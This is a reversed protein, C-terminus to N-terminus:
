GLYSTRTSIRKNGCGHHGPLGLGDQGESDRTCFNVRWTFADHRGIRFRYRLTIVFEYLHKRQPRSATATRSLTLTKPAPPRGSRALRLGAYLYWHKAAERRYTSAPVSVWLRLRIHCVPRAPRSCSRKGTIAGLAEVYVTRVASDPVPGLRAGTVQIRYNTAIEPRVRFSYRASAGTLTVSGGKAYTTAGFREYLLTAKDGRHAGSVTGSVTAVTSASPGRYAVLTRGTVKPLASRTGITITVAGPSAAAPSSSTAARSSTAASSTAASAAPGAAVAAVAIAISATVATARWRGLTSM